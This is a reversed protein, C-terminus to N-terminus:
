GDEKRQGRGLSRVRASPHRGAVVAGDGREAVGPGVIDAGNLRIEVGLLGQGIPERQDAV